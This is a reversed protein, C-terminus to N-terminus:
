LPERGLFRAINALSKREGKGFGEDESVSNRVGASEKLIVLMNKQVTDLIDLLDINSASDKKLREIM